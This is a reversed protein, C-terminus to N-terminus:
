KDFLGSIKAFEILKKLQEPSIDEGDYLTGVQNEPVEITGKKFETLDFLYDLSCDFYKVIKILVEPSPTRENSEYMSVQSRVVGIINSLGEQTLGNSERLHKLKKGIM